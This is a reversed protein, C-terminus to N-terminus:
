NLIDIIEELFKTKKTISEILTLKISPYLIKLVIGPFGAGTGVDCVSINNLDIAKTLTLSDYFHKLYVDKKETISTINTKLNYEILYSYFTELKSLQDENIYINIKKLEDIFEIENM